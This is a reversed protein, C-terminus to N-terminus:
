QARERWRRARFDSFELPSVSGDGNADFDAFAPANAANRMPYGQEARQQMRRKRAENFEKEEVRGDGNLDFTSFGAMNRGM